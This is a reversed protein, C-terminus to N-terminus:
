PRCVSFPIRPLMRSANSKSSLQLVTLLRQMKEDLKLILWNQSFLIRGFSLFVEFSEIYSFEQQDAEDLGFNRVM